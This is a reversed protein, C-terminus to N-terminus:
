AVAVVGVPAQFPAAPGLLELLRDIIQKITVFISDDNSDSWGTLGAANDVAHTRGQQRGSLSAQQQAQGQQGLQMEQQALEVSGVKAGLQTQGGMQACTDGAPVALAAMPSLGLVLAGALVSARVKAPLDGEGFAPRSQTADSRPATSLDSHNSTM